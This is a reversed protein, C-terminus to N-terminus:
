FTKIRETLTLSAATSRLTVPLMDMPDIFVCRCGHAWAWRRTPFNCAPGRRCSTFFRERTACTNHLMRLNPARRAVHKPPLALKGFGDRLNANAPDLRASVTNAKLASPRSSAAVVSILASISPFSAARGSLLSKTDGGVLIVVVPRMMALLHEFGLEGM